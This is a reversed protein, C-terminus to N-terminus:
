VRPNSEPLFLDDKLEVMGYHFKKVCAYSMCAITLDVSVNGPVIQSDNRLTCFQLDSQSLAHNFSWVISWQQLELSNM